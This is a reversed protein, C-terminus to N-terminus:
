DILNRGHYLEAIERKVQLEIRQRVHELERGDLHAPLSQAADRGASRLQRGERGVRRWGGGCGWGVGVGVGGEGWVM